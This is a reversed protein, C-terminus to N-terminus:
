EKGVVQQLQSVVQEMQDAAEAASEAGSALQETVQKTLEITDSLKNGSSKQLQVANEIYRAAGMILILSVRVSLLLRRRKRSIPIQM